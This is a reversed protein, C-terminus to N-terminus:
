GNLAAHRPVLKAQHILKQRDHQNDAGQRGGQSKERPQRGPNTASTDAVVDHSRELFDPMWGSMSETCLDLHVLFAHHRQWGSSIRLPPTATSNSPWSLKARIAASACVGRWRASRRTPCDYVTWGGRVPVLHHARGSLAGDPSAPLGQPARCPSGGRRDRLLAPNPASGRPRGIRCSGLTAPRASAPWLDGAPRLRAPTARKRAAKIWFDFSEATM